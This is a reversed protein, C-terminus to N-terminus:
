PISTSAINFAKFSKIFFYSNSIELLLQFVAAEKKLKQQKRDRTGPESYYLLLKEKKRCSNIYLHQILFILLATGRVLAFIMIMTKSAYIYDSRESKLIHLYRAKTSSQMAQKDENSYLSTYRKCM